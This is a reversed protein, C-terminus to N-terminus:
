IGFRKKDMQYNHNIEKETLIRNYVRISYIEGNLPTVNTSRNGIYSVEGSHDWCNLNNTNVLQENNQYVCIEGEKKHLISYNNVKLASNKLSFTSVNDPLISVTLRGGYIGIAKRSSSNGCMWIHSNSTDKVVIEITRDDYLTNGFIESLNEKRLAYSNNTGKFYINNNNIQINNLTYDYNNGSLDEWVNTSTSHGNRTNKIGDLLLVLGDQVYYDTSATESIVKSNSINSTDKGYGIQGKLEDTLTYYTNNGVKYGDTYYVIGTKNSFAYIDNLNNNNKIGRTINEAGIKNLDISYLVVKNDETINENEFQNKIEDTIDISISENTNDDLITYPYEEKEYKYKDVLNQVEYIERAFQKKKTNNLIKNSSITVVTVLILFVAITILLVIMSIGKKIRVM